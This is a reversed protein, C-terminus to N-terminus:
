GVLPPQLHFIPAHNFTSRGLVTPVYNEIRGLKKEMPPIEDM